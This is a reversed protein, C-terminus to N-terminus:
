TVSYSRTGFDFDPQTITQLDCSTGFGFAGEDNGSIITCTLTGDAGTDVDVCGLNLVTASPATTEPITVLRITPTCDPATNADTLICSSLFVVKPLLNFTPFIALSIIGEGM